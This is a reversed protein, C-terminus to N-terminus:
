RYPLRGGHLLGEHQRRNFASSFRKGCVACPHRRVGEHVVSVHDRLKHANSLEKGCLHCSFTDTKVDPKSRGHPLKKHTQARHMYLISQTAFRRDCYECQFPREDTHKARVHDRLKYKTSFGPRGCVHCDLSTTSSPGDSKTQGCNARHLQEYYLRKFQKGCTSCSVRNFHARKFAM